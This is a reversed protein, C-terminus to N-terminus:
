SLKVSLTSKDLILFDAYWVSKDIRAADTHALILTGHCLSCSDPGLTCELETGAPAAMQLRESLM